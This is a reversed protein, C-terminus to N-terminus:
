NKGTRLHKEVKVIAALFRHILGPIESNCGSEYLTDLVFKNTNSLSMKLFISRKVKPLVHSMADFFCLDGCDRPVISSQQFLDVASQGLLRPKSGSAASPSAPSYAATLKEAERTVPIDFDDIRLWESFLNKEKFFLREKGGRLFQVGKLHELKVVELLQPLLECVDTQQYVQPLFQLM